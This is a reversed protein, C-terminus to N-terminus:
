MSNVKGTCCCACFQDSQIQMYEQINSLSQIFHVLYMHFSICMMCRKKHEHLIFLPKTYFTRCMYAKSIQLNFLTICWLQFQGSGALRGELIAVNKQFKRKLVNTKYNREIIADQICMITSIIQQCGDSTQQHNM